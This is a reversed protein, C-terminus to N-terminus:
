SGVHHALFLYIYLNVFDATFEGNKGRTCKAQVCHLECGLLSRQCLCVAEPAARESHSLSRSCFRRFATLFHLFGM